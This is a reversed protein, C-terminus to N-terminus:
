QESKLEKGVAGGPHISVFDSGDYNSIKMLGVVLADTIAAACLSNSFAIHTEQKKNEISSYLIIYDSLKGLPSDKKETVSILYAGRKKIISAFENLEDSAGGKSFAIVVDGDHVTGSAGHLGDSPHLFSAKKGFCSLLHTMRRAIIGYTGVGSIIIRKNDAHLFELVKIFDDNIYEKLELISQGENNLFEKIYEKIVYNDNKM